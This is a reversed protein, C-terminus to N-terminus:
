KRVMKAVTDGQEEQGIAMTHDAKVEGRYYSKRGGPNFDYKDIHWYRM